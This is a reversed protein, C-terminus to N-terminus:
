RVQTVSRIREVSAAIVEVVRNVQDLTNSAGVTIRLTGDAASSDLGIAQLVHSPESTASACASGSSVAIGNLDLDLLLSEGDVGAFGVNLNNPLRNEMEGNVWIEPVHELLQDLLSDRLRRDHANRSDREDVALVLAAAMGVIGPVNETGARRAREQGGGTIQPNLETQGRAILAGVGKPGYFKHASITLLDVDLDRVDVPMAGVTQVADTHMVAGTDRVLASIEDIPQITGIENNAFMVSVLCTDPRIADHIVLPDVRGSSDVGIFTAQAIGREVLDEVTHLVAHHEITTTLIHPAVDPHGARYREVVGRIAM